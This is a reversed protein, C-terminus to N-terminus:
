LLNTESQKLLDEDLYSLEYYDFSNTLTEGKITIDM